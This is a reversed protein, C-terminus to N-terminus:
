SGYVLLGGFYGTLVVLANGTAAGALHIWAEPKAGEGVRKWIFTRVTYFVAVTAAALFHRRVGEYKRISELGGADILGSALTFIMMLFGFQFAFLAFRRYAPDKKVRWFVLLVLELLYFAIPFHILIPHFLFKSM